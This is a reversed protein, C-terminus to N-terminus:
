ELPGSALSGGYRGERASVLSVLCRHNESNLLRAARARATSFSLPTAGRGTDGIVARKRQIAFHRRGPM